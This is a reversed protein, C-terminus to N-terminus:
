VVGLDQQISLVLQSRSGSTIYIDFRITQPSTPVATIDIGKGTFRNERDLAEKIIAKGYSATQESQPMGYLRSLDAGLTPYLLFDGPETMIRLYANQSDERWITETRGIDGNASLTIDGEGTFYFDAIKIM